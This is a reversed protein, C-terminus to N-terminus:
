LSEEKDLLDVRGTRRWEELRDDAPCRGAATYREVFRGVLAQTREDGGLRPVAAEAARACRAAVEALGPARLGDRAAFVMAEPREDLVTCAEAALASAHEDDVLAAVIAVGVEWDPGAQADLVRLELFGRPRVPPFLTSVHYDVDAQTVPRPGAGQLWTRMTLGAPADWDGGPEDNPVCLVPAALAYSAWAATPDGAPEPAATRQRDLALWVAQRNSLWGNPAGDRFPSNAFMAVLVPLLRQLHRWRAVASRPGSGDTGADLCVQLSVTSCMMERGAPGQRDFYREMAAYRPLDLTRRPPRAADLATRGARLGARDCASEVLALDARTARVLSPLDSARASSLEAQGGPELSIRGRGPLVDRVPALARDVRGAPVPRRPRAADYLLHEVEVGLRGPPGTKFCTSAVYVEAERETMPRVDHMVSAPM